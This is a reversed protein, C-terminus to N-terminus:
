QGIIYRRDQNSLGVTKLQTDRKLVVKQFLAQTGATVTSDSSLIWEDRGGQKSIPKEVTRGFISAMTSHVIMM